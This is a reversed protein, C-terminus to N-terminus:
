NRVVGGDNYVGGANSTATCRTIICNSLVINARIYAGAGTSTEGNQLTFGDIVTEVSCPGDYKVMVYHGLDAADIITPYLDVDRQTFDANYGGFMNVGDQISIYENYTGTAVFVTDGVEANKLADNIVQGPIVYQNEAVMSVAICLAIFLLSKRMIM